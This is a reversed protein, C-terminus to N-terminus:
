PEIAKYKRRLLYAISLSGRQYCPKKNRHPTCPARPSRLKRRSTAVRPADSAIAIRLALGCPHSPGRDAAVIGTIRDRGRVKTARDRASARSNATVSGDKPATIM